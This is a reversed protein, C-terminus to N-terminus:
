LFLGLDQNGYALGTGFGSAGLGTGSLASQLGGGFLGSLSQGVMANPNGAATLGQALLNRTADASTALGASLQAGKLGLQGVNFGAQSGIQGLNVGMNYPQQGLTELNQAQGLATTYPAYTAQQGGYYNGMATAGQGLLGAGFLVDRQGAQQANAALQAEQTARANYLAQLEPTTAGMTGGQAVSLGSRGQQQLRNQLTALEQERGPQLLAMQQNLYNQAVDEPSKALYQNGLGFLRQAGTQLPAFQAQAGEAQTLGQNSLAMFRDQQAKIDPTLNYGASSLRGTAPDFGFQSTGFRTTMGIPRFQAADKAAKTEADIMAQARQAAERSTQMQLLNGATGLGGSILNATSSGLGGLLSSLGASGAANLLPNSTSAPTTAPAAPPAAPATLQPLTLPTSPQILPLTAATVDTISSPREGIITQTEMSPAAVSPAALAPVVAAAVSAVEQATIPRGSNIVTEAITQAQVPTVNPILSTVANAIEQTQAAQNATITQQAIPQNVATVTGALASVIEQNTIPRDSTIIQEAVTPTINPSIASVADVLDSVKLNQGSSVIVEAQTQAQQSTVNPVTAIVANAIEQTSAVRDGTVQVNALNSTTTPTVTSVLASVVPQIANSNTSTIIQEAVTPTINPSVASVASMLDNTTLNQGSTVLVEAQAQAQPVTVNPVTALIANTIQQTSALNDGTVNVTGAQTTPTSVSPLGAIVGALAANTDAGSLLGQGTVQLNALNAPTGVTSALQSNVLNLTAQDVMQPQTAGTVNVTETTPTTAQTTTPTTTPTVLGGLLGGTSVAPTTTGTVNVTGPIPLSPVPTGTISSIARQVTIDNYGGATLTDAIQNTSLGQSALNKADQVAFQRETLGVDATSGTALYNDLTSAGYSAAGGLLAGKLIDQGTGGAIATTGGGITAGTLGALTSGTTGTLGGLLGTLGPLGVTSAALGIVPAAAALLGKDGGGAFTGRDIVEGTKPNFTEWNATNNPDVRTEYVVQPVGAIKAEIDDGEIVTGRATPIVDASAKPTTSSVAPITDVLTQAVAPSAAAQTIIPPTTAVTNTQQVQAIAEPTSSPVENKFQSLADIVSQNYIATGEANTHLADVLLNKNQLIEGQTGVLAVNKNEKAIETFLSDVKPDFNNNIVDDISKAYPSGTLVVNVGQDGLTKVIESINDKITGKDVGQLFDVGGTQLYVTSNPDFQGGGALFTNLQTLTDSTTAGGVAYNSTAQGTAATLQEPLATNLSNWSAGALINGSLLGGSKGGTANAVDEASIGYQRMQAQTTAADPNTALFDRIIGYLTDASGGTNLQYRLADSIAM